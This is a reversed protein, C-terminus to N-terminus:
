YKKKSIKWLINFCNKINKFDNKFYFINLYNIFKHIKWNTKLKIYEKKRINFCLISFFRILHLIGQILIKANEKRNRRNRMVSNFSSVVMLEQSQWKKMKKFKDYKYGSLSDMLIVDIDDENIEKDGDILKEISVNSYLKSNNSIPYYHEMKKFTQLFTPEKKIKEDEEKITSLHCLYNNNYNIKNCTKIIDEKEKVIKDEELRASIKKIKNNKNNTLEFHINNIELDINNFIQPNNKYYSNDLYKIDISLKEDKSILKSIIIFNNYFYNKKSKISESDSKKRFSLIDDSTQINEFFPIVKDKSVKNKINKDINNSNIDKTNLEHNIQMFGAIDENKNLEIKNLKEDKEKKDLKIENNKNKFFPSHIIDEINENDFCYKKNDFNLVQNNEAIAIDKIQLLNKEQYNQNNIRKQRNYIYNKKYESIFSLSNDNLVDFFHESARNKITEKDFDDKNFEDFLSCSSINRTRSNLVVFRENRIKKLNKFFKKIILMFYLYCYKIFHNLFKINKEKNKYKKSKSIKKESSHTNTQINSAIKSNLIFFNSSTKSLVRENINNNTNINSIISFDITNSISNDNLKSNNHTQYNNKNRSIHNDNYFLTRFKDKKFKKEYIKSKKDSKQIMIPKDYTKLNTLTNLYIKSNSNKINPNRNRNFRNLIDECSINKVSSYLNNKRNKNNFYFKYSDLIPHKPTNNFLNKPHIKNKNNNFNIKYQTNSFSSKKNNSKFITNNNSNTYIKSNSGKIMLKNVINNNTKPTYNFSSYYNFYNHGINKQNNKFTLVKKLFISSEKLNPKNLNIGKQTLFSDLTIKKQKKLLM